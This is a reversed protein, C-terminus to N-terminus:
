GSMDGARQLRHRSLPTYRSGHPGPESRMVVMEAVNFPEAEFQTERHTQALAHAVAKTARPLRAITLHPHFPRSERPFDQRSCEDELIQQLRALQGSSDRIGLWLVRPLGRPPFCGGREIVLEFPSVRAAASEAARAVHDARGPEIQGFFKLTLHLKEVREWRVGDPEAGDQRRLRAIHHAARQRAEEPLEVACFVRLLHQRSESHNM